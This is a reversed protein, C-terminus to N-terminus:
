NELTVPIPACLIFAFRSIKSDGFLLFMYFCCTRAHLTVPHSDRWADAQDVWSRSDGTSSRRGGLVQGDTRSLALSADEVFEALQSLALM